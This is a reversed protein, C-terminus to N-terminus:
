SCAISLLYELLYVGAAHIRENEDWVSRLFGMVGLTRLVEGQPMALVSLSMNKQEPILRVKHKAQNHQQGPSKAQASPTGGGGSGSWGM